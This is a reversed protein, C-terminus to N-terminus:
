ELLGRAIEEILLRLRAEQITMSSNGLQPRSNIFSEFGVEREDPYWDAGWV